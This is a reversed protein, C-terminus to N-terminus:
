VGEIIFVRSDSGKQRHVRAAEYAPSHYWARAEEVTPFRLIAAGEFNTGELVEHPGYFAVPTVAHGDRALPAKERYLTLEDLDTTRERVIVVYATM